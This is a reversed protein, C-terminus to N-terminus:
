APGPRQTEAISDDGPRHGWPCAALITAARARTEPPLRGDIAAAMRTSEVRFLNQPKLDRHVIGAEHAATLGRAVQRALEVVEDLQLKQRHRLSWALDHGDLLEMAFTSARVAEESRLTQVAAADGAAPSRAVRELKTHESAGM